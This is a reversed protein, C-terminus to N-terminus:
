VIGDILPTLPLEPVAISSAEEAVSCSGLAALSGVMALCSIRAGKQM